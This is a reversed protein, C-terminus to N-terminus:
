AYITVSQGRLELYVLGDDEAIGCVANLEEGLFHGLKAIGTEVRV